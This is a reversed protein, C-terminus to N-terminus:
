DLADVYRGLLITNGTAPNKILLGVVRVWDGGSITRIGTYGFRFQTWGTLYVDVTQPVLQGAFGKVQMQFTDKLPHVSGDVVTGVYGFDRLTVRKVTLDGESAAGTAPGGVGISQGPLLADANFILTSLAEPLRHKNWRIYYKESGSLQVTAIDGLAVGTNSPLVGRVYLDFSSAGGTSSPVVFTSLGGAYFGNQSLVTIESATITSTSRTLEGSIQVITNQNLENITANGDWETQNTTDITWTRGHPGQVTFSQNTLDVTLVGTDFEDIFAGPADPGVVRVNFVPDVTGNIQGNVVQISKHLDFDMRIGVPETQSVVLSNALNKTITYTTLTPTMYQISPPNGASSMLWGLSPAPDSAITIVIQNYTGVPVANIDILTQLGDFRAFDITAPASLLDVSVGTSTNKAQINTIQVTFSAVAALPTDTGIVFTEGKQTAAASTAAQAISAGAFFALAALSFLSVRLSNRNTRM